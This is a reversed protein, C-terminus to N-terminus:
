AEARYSQFLRQTYKFHNILAQLSSFLYLYLCINLVQFSKVFFKNFTCFDEVCQYELKSLPRKRM